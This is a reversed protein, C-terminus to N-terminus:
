FLVGVCSALDFLMFALAKEQATLAAPMMADGCSDPYSAGGPNGGNGSVHMDSFVVKGCREALPIDVPTTIQFNQPQMETNKVYTWREARATDLNTSTARATMARIPIEGRVTSGGVNLMWTAFSAGKPNNTEDIIDTIAEQNFSTGNNWQAVSAWEPIVPDPGGAKYGGAIWINHWHSLFVRGGANAYLKMADLATQPKTDEHHDGECSLIVIDYPMLSSQANWLTTESDSFTGGGGPFGSKFDDVGEGNSDYDSYLHIRHAGGATGIEADDIGIRRLLCELSDASGTSLAIKPIDGENRNRPLRTQQPDTLATDGCKAVNAITIQRRWKGSTIVLPINAGDPVNGQITFRGNEDTTARALPQGPLDDSCRSCQAGDPMPPLPQNPIYVTIGYLPLTGNPAYVTGSISTEPQGMKQCDTINCEIGECDGEGKCRGDSTCTYGDGCEGGSPTCLADCFGDPACHYGAPCTNPAAPSPDCQSMCAAPPPVTNDCISKGPKGGCAVTLVALLAFASPALVLRVARM